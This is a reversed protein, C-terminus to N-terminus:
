VNDGIKELSWAMKGAPDVLRKIYAVAQNGMLIGGIAMTQGLVNPETCSKLDKAISKFLDTIEEIQTTLPPM